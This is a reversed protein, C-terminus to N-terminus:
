SVEKERKLNIEKIGVRLSDESETEASIYSEIVKFSVWVHLRWM